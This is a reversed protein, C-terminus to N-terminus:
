NTKSFLGKIFSILKKFFTEKKIEVSLDTNEVVTQEQKNNFINDPNYKERLQEQYLIENENLKKIFSKREEESCWYNLKLLAFIIITEEMLNQQEIPKNIDIKPIYNLDREKEIVDKFKQPIKSKLDDGLINLIEYVESYERKGKIEM